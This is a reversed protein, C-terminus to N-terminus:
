AAAEDAPTDDILLAKGQTCVDIARCYRQCRISEGIREEIYVGSRPTWVLSGKGNPLLDAMSNDVAWQELDAQSEMVRAASKRSPKRLAYTTPKAWREDESCEPLWNPTNRAREHAAIRLKIFDLVVEDSKVPIPIQMVQHRPYSDDGARHRREAEGASWDRMIGVIMLRDVSIGCQAALWRYMNLQWVKEPKIGYVVEYVSMLKLDILTNDGTLRDFKGSITMGKVSASVREEVVDGAVIAQELIAHGIKGLYAYIRDSVDETLVNDYRDYLASQRAPALLGTVSYDADGKSYDDHAVCKALAEIIGANNTLKM